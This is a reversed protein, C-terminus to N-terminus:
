GFDLARQRSPIDVFSAGFCGYPESRLRIHSSVVEFECLPTFLTIGAALTQTLKIRLDFNIVHRVQHSPSPLRSESKPRIHSSGDEFECLPKFTTVDFNNVRTVFDPTAERLQRRSDYLTFRGDLNHGHTMIHVDGYLSLRVEYPLSLEGVCGMMFHSDGMWTTCYVSIALICFMMFHSDGMLTTGHVSCLSLCFPDWQVRQVSTSLSGLERSKTNQEHYLM